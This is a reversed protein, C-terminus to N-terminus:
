ASKCRCSELQEGIEEGISYKRCRLRPDARARATRSHSRYASSRRTSTANAGDSPQLSSRRKLRKTSLLNAILVAQEPLSPLAVQNNFEIFFLAHRSTQPPQSASEALIRLTILSDRGNVRTHLTFETRLYCLPAFPKDENKFCLSSGKSASRPIAANITTM